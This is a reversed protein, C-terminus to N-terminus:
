DADAEGRRGHKWYGRITTQPRPLQREGILHRRIRQMAAAEGAVWVRTGSPPAAQEIAAVLADGPPAGAALDHWTVTASPHTPLEIRGDPEAVEIHVAAPTNTPLSELLQGIAPIATEDGGVLFAPADPDVRYGRGPGSVAAADGETATRAWDSAAGADHLVIEVDLEPTAPDARRPTLTRIVPRSGDPLLFENGNWTPLVLQGDDPLLLRVSAAPEDVAFGSLEPGTLTVRVLRPGVPRSGAVTVRRFRPPPRRVRRPANASSGAESVAPTEVVGPSAPTPTSGTSRSCPSALVTQCWSDDAVSAAVMRRRDTESFFTRRLDMTDPLDLDVWHITGNDLREFRTNLGAGVEVVTGAPHDAM